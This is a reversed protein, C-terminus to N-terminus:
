RGRLAARAITRGALAVAMTSQGPLVSDGVLWMGRALRPPFPLPPPKGALAPFGGVRGGARGAFDVWTKPTATITTAPAPLHPRLLELVAQQCAAKREEYAAGREPWDGRRAHVSVTAPRLGEATTREAGAVSVFVSQRAGLVSDGPAELQLHRGHAPLGAAPLGLYVCLAGWAEPQAALRRAHRAPLGGLLARADWPTLNLVIADAALPEGDDLTVSGPRAATAERGLLITGGLARFREALAAALAGMGGELVATGRHPLVLALAGYLAMARDSPAQATILLQLDCFSRCSGRELGHRELLAGFPLALLPALALARTPSTSRAIALYDLTGTPPLPPRREAAALVTDTVEECRRWFPEFAAGFAQRGEDLWRGRDVWRRVAYGDGHVEWAVDPRHHPLEIELDALVGGLLGPHTLGFALTAGADFELGALPFTTACGGVHRREVVTVAVGRRQLECAAVLGGVGAGVVVAVRPGSM